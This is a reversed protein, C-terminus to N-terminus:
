NDSGTDPQIMVSKSSISKDTNTTGSVMVKTGVTLDSKSGDINKSITTSDSLLVIVTSGNETKITISSDDTSIIEGSNGGGGPGGTPPTGGGPPMGRTNGSTGSPPTGGQIGAVTSTAKGKQYSIGGWFGGGSLVIACVIM